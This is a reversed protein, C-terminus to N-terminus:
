GDVAAGGVHGWLVGAWCLAVLALAVFVAASGLDKARGCFEHHETGIRDALAEIGSNLLEVSLVIFLPGILLLYELTSKGLWLALPIMVAALACEQRFAAEYRWAARLGALSYGTASLLRDFGKRESAMGLDDLSM